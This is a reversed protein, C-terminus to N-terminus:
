HNHNHNDEKDEKKKAKKEALDMGCKPCEGEKDSTVEPHMPCVYMKAMKDHKMKSHDMHKKGEKMKSHDMKKMEMGCKSCEGPKDSTEEPHMPCVYMEKNMDMKENKMKDHNMKSHDHEQAQVATLSFIGFTLAVILNKTKM